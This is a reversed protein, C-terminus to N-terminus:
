RHVGRTGAVTLHPTSGIITLSKRARTLAVYLNCVDAIEGVNAIIVHDYELGKVLVTRSVQRRHEARGLHRIRGRAHGLGQLLADRLQDPSTPLPDGSAAARVAFAIDNWAERSHLHAEDARAITDMTTSVLELTPNAILVDLATLTTVLDPRKLGLPSTGQTLRSMVPGNLGAKPFGTFCLKALEAVWSAFQHPAKTTLDTLRERMFTGNIDEMTTYGLSAARRATNRTQIQGVGAVILVSDTPPRQEYLAARLASGDAALPRFRVGRPTVRDSLDITTGPVLHDRLDLLWQGLEANHDEWRWPRHEVHHDPFDQRVQAWGTLPAHPDFGFIAQLPDGFVGSAPIAQRLLLVLDHQGRTCDQYEDVLVHTFSSCLVQQVHENECVRRGAKLYATSDKWDPQNPIPVGALVPYARAFEFAFSTITCVHAAAALDPGLRRRIAQVGANTHTLVLVKPGAPRGTSARIERVMDVLLHTKGAGAPMEVAAPLADLFGRARKRRADADLNDGM